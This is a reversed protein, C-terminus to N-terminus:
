LGLAHETIVSIINNLFEIEQKRCNLVHQLGLSKKLNVNKELETIKDEVRDIRKSLYNLELEM